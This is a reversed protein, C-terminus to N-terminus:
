GERSIKDPAHGSARVRANMSDFEFISGFSDKDLTALRKLTQLHKWGERVLQQAAKPERQRHFEFLDRINVRYVVMSM